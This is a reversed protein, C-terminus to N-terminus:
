KSAGMVFESRRVRKVRAGGVCLRGAADVEHITLAQQCCSTARAVYWHHRRRVVTFTCNCLMCYRAHSDPVWLDREIQGDNGRVKKANSKSAERASPPSDELTRSQLWDQFEKCNKFKPYLDLKMLRFIFMQAENFVEPSPGACPDEPVSIQAIISRRIPDDCSIQYPASDQLYTTFIQLAREKRDSVTGSNCREQYSEVAEWFLLVEECYVLQLYRRFMELLHPTRLVEFLSPVHTTTIYQRFM